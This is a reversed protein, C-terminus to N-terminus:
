PNTGGGGHKGTPHNRYKELLAGTRAPNRFRNRLCFVIFILTFPLLLIWGLWAMWFIIQHNRDAQLASEHPDTIRRVYMPTYAQQAAIMREMWSLLAPQRQLIPLLEDTLGSSMCQLHGFLAFDVFGM